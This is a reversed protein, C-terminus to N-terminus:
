EGCGNYEGYSLRMCFLLILQTKLLKVIRGVEYHKTVVNSSRQSAITTEKFLKICNILQSREAIIM